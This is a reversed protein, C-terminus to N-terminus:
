FSVRRTAKSTLVFAIARFPTLDDVIYLLIRLDQFLEDVEHINSLFLISSSSSGLTHLRNNVVMLLFVHASEFPASVFLLTRLQLLLIQSAIPEELLSLCLSAPYWGPRYRFHDLVWQYGLAIGTFLQYCWLNQGLNLSVVSILTLIPLLVECPVKSREVTAVTWDIMWLRWDQTVGPLTGQFIVRLVIENM